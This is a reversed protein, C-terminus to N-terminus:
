VQDVFKRLSEAAAKWQVDNQTHHGANEVEALRVRGFDQEKVGNSVRVLSVQDMKAADAKTSSQNPLQAIAARYEEVMRFQTGGMIKDETGIMVMIKQSAGQWQTLSKLIDAPSLWTRNQIGRGRGAMGLPWFMAEYNSMWKMFEAVRHFPYEPGFFANYVLRPTSLPSNPHYLHFLARLSFWPDIRRFWNWYVNVNGFHPVAGLLVLGRGQIQRKSLAYQVLGGGSSHAVLVPDQGERRRVEQVCATLDQALDDLSTQWTMRWFPVSYSAGHSRLSYAYTTTQSTTSFYDMWELWVSASGVGGHIFFVPPHSRATDTGSKSPESILLELPGRDTTVFHRTVTPPLPHLLPQQTWKLSFLGQIAGFM